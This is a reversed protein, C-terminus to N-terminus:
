KGDWPSCSKPQQQQRASCRGDLNLISLICPHWLEARVLASCLFTVGSHVVPLMLYFLVWLKDGGTVGRGERARGERM